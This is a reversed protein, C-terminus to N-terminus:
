VRVPMVALLQQTPLLQQSGSWEFYRRYTLSRWRGHLAISAEPVGALFLATTGGRRFSHGAYHTPDVRLVSNVVSKFRSVFVNKSVPTSQTPGSLFLTISPLRLQRPLLSVYCVYAALPCLIDRRRALRVQVPTLCTKSYSITLCIGWSHATVCRHNFSSSVYESIRLVGFFAFVYMCWDRAQGFDTFDISNYILILDAMTIATKPQVVETLGFYNNLGRRVREYLKFRPLPATGNTEAWNNLASLYVPLTTIKHTAIYYVM